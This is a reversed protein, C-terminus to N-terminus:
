RPGRHLSFQRPLVLQMSCPKKGDYSGQNRHNGVWVRHPGVCRRVTCRLLAKTKKRWDEGVKLRDIIAHLAKFVDDTIIMGVGAETRQKFVRHVLTFEGECEFM